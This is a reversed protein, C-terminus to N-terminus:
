KKRSYRREGESGKMGEKEGEGEKRLHISVGISEKGSGKTKKKMKDLGKRKGKEQKM